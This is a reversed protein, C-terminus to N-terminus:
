SPVSSHQYNVFVRWKEILREDYPADIFALQSADAERAEIEMLKVEADDEFWHNWLRRRDTEIQSWNM